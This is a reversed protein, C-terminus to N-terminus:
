VPTAETQEPQEAPTTHKCRTHCHTPRRTLRLFSIAGHNADDSYESHRKIRRPHLPAPLGTEAPSDSGMAGGSNRDPVAGQM